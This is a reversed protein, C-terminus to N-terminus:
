FENSDLGSAILSRENTFLRKGNIPTHKQDLVDRAVILQSAQTDIGREIVLSTAFLGRTLIVIPLRLEVPLRSIGFVFLNMILMWQSSANTGSVSTQKVLSQGAVRM